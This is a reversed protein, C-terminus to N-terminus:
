VMHDDEAVGVFVGLSLAAIEVDQLLMPDGSDQDIRDPTKGLSEFPKSVATRRDHADVACCPRLGGARDPDVVGLATLDGGPVEELEARAADRQDVAGGGEPGAGIATATGPARDGTGPEGT